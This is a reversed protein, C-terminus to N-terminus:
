FRCRASRRPYGSQGLKMPMPPPGSQASTASAIPKFNLDRATALSQSGSSERLGDQIWVRILRLKHWRCHRATRHCGRKPIRTRLSRTSSAQVPAGPIVIKGGSGGKVISGFAALNIDAKQEDEGHCKWCHQRFIPKIQEDYSVASKEAARAAVVVSLAILLALVIRTMPQILPQVHVGDLEALELFYRRVGPSEECGPRRPEDHRVNRRRYATRSLARVYLEDIISEPTRKEAVMGTILGSSIRGQVTDGAMLNLAQSLTPEPKTECSCISARSSRGFTDFFGDGTHPGTTDGSLRPYYQVAKTGVPFDTFGRSSGTVQVISDLLVDARLRRLRCRSFQRDDLANTANPKSSLQYVRSTCIDRVLARLNFGSQVLHQALADLLPKNTPPNSVRMDDLPEVLGRGMHHASIRNALNRAFLENGPSTLWRALEARTSERRCPSKAVSCLRRCRGITSWTNLRSPRLMTTSISSAPKQERSAVSAPSCASSVMTTTWRGVISRITTASPVNSKCARSSNRFIPPSTKPTFKTSHVLMTYLNAPGSTLNSGSATILEAVFENLPRNAHMQDRIWEFYAEAAKM